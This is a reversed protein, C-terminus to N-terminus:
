NSARRSARYASARSIGLEKAIALVGKGGAKLEKVANYDITSSRGKYVGRNNAAEIGARQLKNRDLMDHPWAHLKGHCVCCITIVNTEENDGGRSQPILHHHELRDQITEGCAVCFALRM